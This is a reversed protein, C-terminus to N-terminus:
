KVTLVKRFLGTISKATERRGEKEAIYLDMLRTIKYGRRELSKRAEEIRM